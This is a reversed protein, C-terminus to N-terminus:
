NNIGLVEYMEQVGDVEEYFTNNFVAFPIIKVVGKSSYSGDSDFWDFYEEWINPEAVTGTQDYIKHVGNVDCFVSVHASEISDNAYMFDVIMAWCRTSNDRAYVLSLFSSAWDECDGKNAMKSSMFETPLQWWSDTPFLEEDYAYGFDTEMHSRILNLDNYTNATKLTLYRQLRYKVTTDDPTIFSMATTCPGTRFYYEFETDLYYPASIYRSLDGRTMTWGCFDFRYPKKFVTFNGVFSIECEGDVMANAMALKSANLHGDVLQGLFVDNCYVSANIPNGGENKYEFLSIDSVPDAMQNYDSIDVSFSFTDYDCYDFEEWHRSEGVPSKDFTFYFEQYKEEGNECFDDIDVIAYDDFRVSLNGSPSVFLGTGNVIESDDSTMLYFMMKSRDLDVIAKGRELVANEPNMIGQLQEETVTMHYVYNDCYERDEWTWTEGAPSDYFTVLIDEYLEDEGESGGCVDGRNLLAYGESAEYSAKGSDSMFTIKVPLLTEDDGSTVMIALKSEDYRAANLVSDLGEDSGGSGTCGFLLFGSLIIFILGAYKM